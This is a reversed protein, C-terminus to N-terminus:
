LRRRLRTSVPAQPAGAAIRRAEVGTLVQGLRHLFGLHICFMRDVAEGAICIAALRVFSEDSMPVKRRGVDQLIPSSATDWTLHRMSEPLDSQGHKGESAVWVHVADILEPPGENLELEVATLTEEVTLLATM